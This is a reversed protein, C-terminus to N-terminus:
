RRYPTYQTYWGPNELINRLIPPPTVTGHYGLGIYSRFVRNREALERLEALVEPESAAGPLDLPRGGRISAPVTQEVLEDLSSLGMSGLMAAIDADRPGLHRSVFRDPHRLLDTNTM